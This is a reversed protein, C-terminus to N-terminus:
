EGCNCPKVTGTTGSSSSDDDGSVLAAITAIGAVGAVIPMWSASGKAAAVAPVVPAPPPTPVVPAPPPAVPAPPPPPPAVPAPPPPPPAVYPAKFPKPFNGSFWNDCQQMSVRVLNGKSDLYANVKMNPSYPIYKGQLAKAVGDRGGRRGTGVDCAGKAYEPSIRGLTTVDVSAEGKRKLPKKHTFSKYFKATGNAIAQNCEAFTDYGQNGHKDYVVGASASVATGALVSVLLLKQIKLM